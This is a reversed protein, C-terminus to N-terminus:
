NTIFRESGAGCIACSTDVNSANYINGCTPCVAYGVPVNFSNTQFATVAKKYFEVQNKKANVVWTLSKEIKELKEKKANELATPYMTTLEKSGEDFAAQLNETTTKVEFTPKIAEMHNGSEKLVTTNNFAHIAEAKSAADFLNAIILMGEENAKKAFAAYKASAITEATIAAKLNEITKPSEKKNCGTLAFSILAITLFTRM